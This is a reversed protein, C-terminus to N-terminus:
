VPRMPNSMSFSEEAANPLDMDHQWHESDNGPQPPASSRGRCGFYNFIKGFINEEQDALVLTKTVNALREQEERELDAVTEDFDIIGCKKKDLQDFKALLPKIDIEKDVLELNALMAILFSLKDIGNDGNDLERIFNFDLKRSMLKERKRDNKMELTISVLNGLSLAVIICSSLIYFIAFLRSSPKTLPTDGYGVTMSTVVTFYLATTYDWGENTSYFLAGMVLVIWIAILPAFMRKIYFSTPHHTNEFSEKSSKKAQQEAYELISEAFNNLIRGVIVIGGIIYFITFIRGHRTSPSFDGYGVTTLTVTQYYLCTVTDWGETTQYYFLGVLYYMLVTFFSLITRRYRKWADAISTEADGLGYFQRKIHRTSSEVNSEHISERRTRFLRPASSDGSISNFTSGRRTDAVSNRKLHDAKSPM